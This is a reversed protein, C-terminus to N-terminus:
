GYDLEKLILDKTVHEEPIILIILQVSSIRTYADLMPFGPLCILAVFCKKDSKKGFLFLGPIM